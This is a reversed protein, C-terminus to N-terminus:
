TRRANPLGGGERKGGGEERLFCRQYKILPKIVRLSHVTKFNALEDGLAYFGGVLGARAKFIGNVIHQLVQACVLRGPFIQM